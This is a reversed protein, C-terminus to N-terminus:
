RFESTVLRVMEARWELPIPAEDTKGSMYDIAARFERSYYDEQSFALAVQEFKKSGNDGFWLGYPSPGDDRSVCHLVGKEFILRLEDTVPNSYGNCTVVYPTGGDGVGMMVYSSPVSIGPKGTVYEAKFSVTKQKLFFHVRDLQHVGYNLAIGRGSHENDLMWASRGDWFYDLSISDNICMLRGLDHSAIFREATQFIANYRQTHCVTAKIKHRDRAEIMELCEADHLALAKEIIVDLGLQASAIFAERHIHHPLNILVADLKENQLMAHYDGYIACEIGLDQAVKEAKSVTTNSIAVLAADPQAILARGNPRAINGAGMMGFRLKKEM